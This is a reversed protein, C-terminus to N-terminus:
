DFFNGSEMDEPDSGYYIDENTIFESEPESEEQGDESEEQGDELKEQSDESEEQDDESQEDTTNTM